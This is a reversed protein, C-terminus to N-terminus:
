EFGGQRVWFIFEPLMKERTTTFVFGYYERAKNYLLHILHPAYDERVKLKEAIDKFTNCGDKIAEVTKQERETLDKPNVEEPPAGFKRVLEIVAGKMRCVDSTVLERMYCGECRCGRKYCFISSETWKHAYANYNSYYKM